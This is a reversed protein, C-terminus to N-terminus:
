ICSFFFQLSLSLYASFYCQIRVYRHPSKHTRRRPRVPIEPERKVFYVDIIEEPEEELPQDDPIAGAQEDSLQQLLQEIQNNLNQQHM